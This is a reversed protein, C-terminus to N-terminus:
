KMYQKAKLEARHEKWIGHWSFGYERCLSMIHHTFATIDEVSEMIAAKIADRDADTMQDQRKMIPAIRMAALAEEGEEISKYHTAAKHLDAGDLYPVSAGGTVEEAAALYLRPDDFALAAQRMLHNTAPRKGTEVKAISSRDVLVQDAFEGQTMGQQKRYDQLVDGISM